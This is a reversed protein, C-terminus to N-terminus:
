VLVVSDASNILHKLQDLTSRQHPLAQQPLTRGLVSLVVARITRGGAIQMRYVLLLPSIRKKVHCRCKRRVKRCMYSALARAAAPKTLLGRQVQNKSLLYSAKHSCSCSQHQNGVSTISVLTSQTESRIAVLCRTYMQGREGLREQKHM